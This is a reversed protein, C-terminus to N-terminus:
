YIIGFTGDARTFAAPMSWAPLGEVRGSQGEIRDGNKEFVQWAVNGGKNWGTGEAWAIIFQGKNNAAVAPHKQNDSESPVSFPGSAPQAEPALCFRVHGRTEWAGVM